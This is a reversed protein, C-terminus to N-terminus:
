RRRAEEVLAIFESQQAPTLSFLAGIEADVERDRENGRLTKVLSALEAAHELFPHPIPIDKLDECVVKPFLRRQTKRGFLFLYGSMLSSNLLASLAIAIESPAVKLQNEEPATIIIHLLSRNYFLPYDIACSRLLHPRGATIERIVVRPKEYNARDGPDALWPGFSLYNDSPKVAYRDVEKGLLFPVWSAGQPTDNHFLREMSHSKTQPPSGKGVAYEQLAILPRFLHPLDRIPTSNRTIVDVPDDLKEHWWLPITLGGRSLVARTKISGKESEKQELNILRSLIIDEHCGGKTLYVTITEIGATKFTRQPHSEIQRIARRELFFSRIKRGSSIGLWANPTIFALVGHHKLSEYTAVLFPLYTSVNGTLQEPYRAKLLDIQSDPLRGDRSLGFPPNGIIYDVSEPTTIRRAVLQPSPFLYDDNLLTNGILKPMDKPELRPAYRALASLLSFEAIQIASPNTDVGFLRESVLEILHRQAREKNAIQSLLAILLNGSGCAPDVILSSRRELICPSLECIQSAIHSSLAPPTYVSGTKWILEADLRIEFIDSPSNSSVFSLRESRDKTGIVPGKIASDLAGPSLSLFSEFLSCPIQEYAVTIIDRLHEARSEGRSLTSSHTPLYGTQPRASITMRACALVVELPVTSAQITNGTILPEPSLSSLPSLESM